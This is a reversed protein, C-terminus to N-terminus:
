RQPFKGREILVKLDAESVFPLHRRWAEALKAKESGPEGYKYSDEGTLFIAAERLSCGRKKAHSAIRAAETVVTNALRQRPTEDIDLVDDFRAGNSEKLLGGEPIDTYYKVQGDSGTELIDDRYFRATGDQLKIRRYIKSV